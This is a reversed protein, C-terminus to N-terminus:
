NYTFNITIPTSVSGATLTPRTQTFRAFLDYSAGIAARSWTFSTVNPTVRQSSGNVLEIAVGSATGNRVAFYHNDTTDAVGTFRMHINTIDTTCNSSTVRVLRWQTTTSGTFSNGQYSGLDVNPVSFSCTGSQFRGTFRM